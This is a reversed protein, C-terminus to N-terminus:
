PTVKLHQKVCDDCIWASAGDGDKWIILPVDSLAGQCISCLAPPPGDGPAWCIPPANPKIELRM